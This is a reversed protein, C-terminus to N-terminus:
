DQVANIAAVLQAETGTVTEASTFTIIGDAVITAGKIAYRYDGDEETVFIAHCELGIPIQGYHETFYGTDTYSDLKALAHGGVGDYSLFVASNDFDYGDPVDALITTKPRADTYFCDVNTWGFNDFFAYYNQGEIFLNNMQGGDVVQEWILENTSNITDTVIGTWLSMEPNIGDTLSTPVILNVSCSIDLPQGNKAAKVFFEGGSVLLSLEGNPLIGQTPKNTVAMTGSDFIEVFDLDIAGTVPNGNLTLCAGSINITVGKASTFSVNIDEANFQFHQTIRNLAETELTKFEASTPRDSSSSNDDNSECAMFSIAIFFLITTIKLNKKM